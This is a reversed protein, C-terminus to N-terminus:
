QVDIGIMAEVADAGSELVIIYDGTEPLRYAVQGMSGWSVPAMLRNQPDLVYVTANNVTLVMQQNILARLVLGKAQGAALPVTLSAGTTGRAFSVRQVDAPPTIVTDTPGALPPITVSLYIDGSGQLVITYDGNRPIAYEAWSTASNIPTLWGGDPDLVVFNVSGLTYLVMTQGASVGLVYGQPDAPSLSMNIEASTGGRAFSIRQVSTPMPIPAGSSLPPINFIVSVKGVGSLIVTYDGNAPIAFQWVDGVWGAVPVATGNPGMLSVRTGDSATVFLTQGASINLVYGQPQGLILDATFAYATSNPAFRVREVTAPSAAAPSRSGTLLAVSNTFLPENPALEAARQIDALGAPDSPNVHLAIWGRVFHAMPLDPDLTLAKTTALDIWTALDDVWSEAMTGVILPTDAGFLNDVGVAAMEDRVAGYDGYFLNELLPYADNRAMDRGTALLDIVVKNWAVTADDPALAAAQAITSRADAWLWGEAFRVALNNADRAEAPASDPLLALNVAELQAGTWRLVSFDVLRVGCAYCFVYPETLDLVVEELGDGNLDQVYGAGPASSFNSAAM